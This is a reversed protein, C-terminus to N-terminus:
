RAVTCNIEEHLITILHQIGREVWRDRSRESCKLMQAQDWRSGALLYSVEIATRLTRDIEGLKRIARDTQWVEEPAERSTGDTSKIAYELYTCHGPLGLFGSSLGGAVYRAWRKLRLDVDEENLTM